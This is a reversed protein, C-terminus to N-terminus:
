VAAGVARGALAVYSGAFLWRLGASRRPTVLHRLGAAAVAYGAFVVFTVAVFAAGLVVIQRAAPRGPDVFQPLFAVFFLSIKPNLLNMVVASRVIRAGSSAAPLAERDLSVGRSRLQRWALLLLYAAGALTVGRFALTGVQLLATLGVTALLLHPLVSVAGAAAARLGPGLGGAVAHSLTYVVGAGPTAAVVLTVVLFEISM